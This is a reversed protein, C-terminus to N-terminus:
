SFRNYAVGKIDYKDFKIIFIHHEVADFTKQDDVSIECLKWQGVVRKNQRNFSNHILIHTTSYKQLYVFKLVYIVANM